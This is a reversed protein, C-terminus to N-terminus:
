MQDAPPMQNWGTVMQGNPLLVVVLTGCYRGPPRFAVPGFTGQKARVVISGDLFAGESNIVALSGAACGTFKKEYKVKGCDVAVSVDDLGVGTENIVVFHNVDGPFFIRVRLWNAACVLIIIGAFIWVLRSRRENV